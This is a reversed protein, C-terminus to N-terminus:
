SFWRKDTLRVTFKITFEITFGIVFEIAFEINFGATFEIGFWYHVWYGPMGLRLNLLSNSLAFHIGTWLIELSHVQLISGRTFNRPRKTQSLLSMIM